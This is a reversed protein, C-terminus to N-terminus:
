ERVIVSVTNGSGIQWCGGVGVQQGVHHSPCRLTTLPLGRAVGQGAAALRAAEM